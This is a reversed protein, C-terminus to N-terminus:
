NICKYVIKYHQFRQAQDAAKEFCEQISYKLQPNSYNVGQCALATGLCYAIYSWM